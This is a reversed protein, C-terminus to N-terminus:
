IPNRLLWVVHVSLLLFHYVHLIRSINLTRIVTTYITTMTLSISREIVRGSLCDCFFIPLTAHVLYVLITM